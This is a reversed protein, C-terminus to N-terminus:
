AVLTFDTRSALEPEEAGASPGANVYGKRVDEVHAHFEGIDLKAFSEPYGEIIEATYDTIDQRTGDDNETKQMEEAYAAILEVLKVFLKLIEGISLEGDSYEEGAPKSQVGEDIGIPQSGEGPYDIGILEGLKGNVFDLTGGLKGLQDGFARIDRQQVEAELGQVGPEPKSDGPQEGLMGNVFKTIEEPSTENEAFQKALADVVALRQNVIVGETVDVIELEETLGGTPKGDQEPPQLQLQLQEAM